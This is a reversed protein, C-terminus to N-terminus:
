MFQSTDPFAFIRHLPHRETVGIAPANKLAPPPPLFLKSCMKELNTLEYIDTLYSCYTYKLNLQTAMIMDLGHRGVM